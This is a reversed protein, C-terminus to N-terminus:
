FLRAQRDAKPPPEPEEDEYPIGRAICFQRVAEKDRVISEAEQQNFERRQDTM